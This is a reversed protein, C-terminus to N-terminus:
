VDFDDRDFLRVLNAVNDANSIFSGLQYEGLIPTFFHHRAAFTPRTLIRM